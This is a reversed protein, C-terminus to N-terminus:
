GLVYSLGAKLAAVQLRRQILEPASSPLGFYRNLWRELWDGGPCATPVLERHGKITQVKPLQTQVAHVLENLKDIQAGTPVRGLTFNGDLCIGITHEYHGKCHWGAEEFPLCWDAAGSGDIKVHYPITPWGLSVFREALRESTVPAMGTHHIVITDIADLRRRTFTVTPHRDLSERKDVVPLSFPEEYSAKVHTTLLRLLEGRTVSFDWWNSNSSDACFWAAFGVKPDARLLRDWKVVDEMAKQPNGQYATNWGRHERSVVGADPGCEKIGLELHQLEQPLKPQWRQHRLPDGMPYHGQEPVASLFADDLTRWWYAHIILGHAWQGARVLRPDRTWNWDGPFMADPPQREGTSFMWYKHGADHVKRGLKEDILLLKYINNGQTTDLENTGTWEKVLGTRFAEYSSIATWFKHVAEDPRELAVSDDYHRGLLRTHPSAEQVRRLFAIDCQPLLVVLVEPQAEAVFGVM